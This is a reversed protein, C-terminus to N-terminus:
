WPRWMPGRFPPFDQVCHINPAPNQHGAVLFNVHEFQCNIRTCNEQFRCMEIHSFNCDPWFRCNNKYRCPKPPAQAPAPHQYRCNTGFRCNNREWYRCVMRNKNHYTENHKKLQEKNDAVMQCVDCREKRNTHKENLHEALEEKSRAKYECQDCRILPLSRAGDDMPPSATIKIGHAVKMHRRILGMTKFVTSCRNCTYGDDHSLFGNEYNQNGPEHLTMHGKLLARDNAVFDCSKCKYKEKSRTGTEKNKNRLFVHAAEVDSIDSSDEIQIVEKENIM